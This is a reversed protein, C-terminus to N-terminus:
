QARISNDGWPKDLPSSSTVAGICFCVCMVICDSKHTGKWLWGHYCHYTCHLILILSQQSKHVQVLQINAEHSSMPLFQVFYSTMSYRCDIDVSSRSADTLDHIKLYLQEIVFFFHYAQKRTWSPICKLSEKKSLLQLYQFNLCTQICSTLYIYVLIYYIRVFCAQIQAKIGRIKKNRSTTGRRRSVGFRSSLPFHSKPAVTCCLFLKPTM